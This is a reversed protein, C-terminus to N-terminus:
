EQAAKDLIAIPDFISNPRTHRKYNKKRKKAKHIIKAVPLNILTRQSPFYLIIRM